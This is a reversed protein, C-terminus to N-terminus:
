SRLMKKIFKDNTILPKRIILKQYCIEYKNLKTPNEVFSVPIYIFKRTKIYFLSFSKSLLTDIFNWYRTCVIADRHEGHIMHAHAAAFVM